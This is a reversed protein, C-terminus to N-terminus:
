QFHATLLNTPKTSNDFVVVSTGEDRRERGGKERGGQLGPADRQTLLQVLGTRGSWRDM